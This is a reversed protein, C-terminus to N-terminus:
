DTENTEIAVHIGRTQLSRFFHREVDSERATRNFSINITDGFGITACGVSRSAPHTPLVDYREIKGAMYEPLKLRGLNSLSSTTWRLNWKRFIWPMLANKLALPMHRLFPNRESGVNRSIIQQYLKPNRQLRMQHHVSTLIEDISWEGLRPDIEIFVTLFFNRLSVSGFVPRLNVPVDIRLPGPLRDCGGFRMLACHQLAELYTANLYEGVSVNKAKAQTSLQAASIRGCTVHRIGQMDPTLPLLLAAPPHPIAPLNKKYHKAFDNSLEEPNPSENVDLLGVSPNRPGEYNLYEALLTNLFTLAGSGDTLVHACDLAITKHFVRIRWPRSRGYGSFTEGLPYRSDPHIKVPKEDKEFYYWFFGPKVRTRFLPFRPETRALADELRELQVPVKLTASVRFTSQLRWSNLSAFVKGANDTPFWENTPKSIAM